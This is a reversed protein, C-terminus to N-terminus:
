PNSTQFHVCSQCSQSVRPSEFPGLHGTVPLFAHQPSHFSLSSVICDSVAVHHHLFPKPSRVYVLSALTLPSNTNAPLWVLQHKAQGWEQPLAAYFYNYVDMTWTQLHALLEDYRDDSGDGAAHRQYSPVMLKVANCQCSRSNRRMAYLYGGM